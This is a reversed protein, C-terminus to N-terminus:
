RWGRTVGVTVFAPDSTRFTDLYINADVFVRIM